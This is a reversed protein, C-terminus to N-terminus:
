NKALEVIYKAILEKKKTDVLGVYEVSLGGKYTIKVEVREIVEEEMTFWRRDSLFVKGVEVM